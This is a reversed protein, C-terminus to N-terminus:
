ITISQVKSQLLISDYFTNLNANMRCRWVAGRDGSMLLAPMLDDDDSFVFIAPTPKRRALALIDCCLLTDVLKQEGYTFADEMKVSCGVLPCQGKSWRVVLDIACGTPAACAAPNKRSLRSRIGHRQRYTWGLLQAPNDILSSAIECHIHRVIRGSNTVVIPFQKAIEQTLRSGSNSLGSATYWGGYLRIYIDGLLQVHQGIVTMLRTAFAGLGGNRIPAPVNDFDVVCFADM